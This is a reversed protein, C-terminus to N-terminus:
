WTYDGQHVVHKESAEEDNATTKTRGVVKAAGASMKSAEEGNAGFLLRKETKSLLSSPYGGKEPNSLTSPESAVLGFICGIVFLTSGLM